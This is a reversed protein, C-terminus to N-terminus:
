RRTSGLPQDTSSSIFSQARIGIPRRRLSGIRAMATTPRRLASATTTPKPWRRVWSCPTWSFRKRAPTRLLPNAKRLAWSSSCPWSTAIWRACRSATSARTSWRGTTWPGPNTPSGNRQRIPNKRDAYPYLKIQNLLAERAKPDEPMLRIGVFFNNMPSHNIIFGESEAEPPVEQYPGVFLYKGPRTMQAIQTQWMDSTAGRVQNGPPIEIVFPGSEKM